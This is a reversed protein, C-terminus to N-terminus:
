LKLIKINFKQRSNELIYIKSFISYRCGFNFEFANIYHPYVTYLYTPTFFVMYVFILICLINYTILAYSYCMMYLFWVM